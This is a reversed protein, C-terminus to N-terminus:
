RFYYVIKRSVIWINWFQICLELQIYFFIDPTEFLRVISPSSIRLALRVSQEVLGGRM